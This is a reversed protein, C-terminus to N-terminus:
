KERLNKVLFRRFYGVLRAASPPVQLQCVMVNGLCLGDVKDGCESYNISELKHNPMWGDGITKYPLRSRNKQQQCAWRDVSSYDSLLTSLLTTTDFCQEFAQSSWLEDISVYVRHKPTRNLNLWQFCIAQCSLYRHHANLERSATANCSSPCKAFAQSLRCPESNMLQGCFPKQNLM